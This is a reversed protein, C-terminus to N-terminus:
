GRQLLTSADRQEPEISENAWGMVLGLRNSRTRGHRVVHIVLSEGMVLHQGVGGQGAEVEM